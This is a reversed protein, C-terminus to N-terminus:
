SSQITTSTSCTYLTKTSSASSYGGLSSTMVSPYAKPCLICHLLHQMSMSSCWFISEKYNVSYLIPEKRVHNGVVVLVVVVVVVEEDEEIGVNAFHLKVVEKEEEDHFSADGCGCFEGLNNWGWRRRRRTTRFFLFVQRGVDVLYVLYKMGVEDEEEEDFM